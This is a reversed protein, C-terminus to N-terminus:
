GCSDMRDFSPETFGKPILVWGIAGTRNRVKVWWESEPTRELIGICGNKRKACEDASGIDATDFSELLRGKHWGSMYGEGQSTLLFLRDDVALAVHERPAKPFRKSYVVITAARTVRAEGARTTIVVGSMATVREGKAIGFVPKRRGSGDPSWYEVAQFPAEAVWDRYICCEFPCAGADVYPLTPAAPAQAVALTLGVMALLLKM